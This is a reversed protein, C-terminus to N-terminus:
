FIREKVTIIDNPQIRDTPRAPIDRYRGDPEPRKIVVRRESGMETVGGAEAIAQLVTMGSDLRFPGPAHVQGTVYFEPARPVYIQDGARMTVEAAESAGEAQALGHLNIALRRLTNDAGKRLIYVSDAGAATEGGAQALLDVLTTSSEISYIGPRHVQGLVSVEQSRLQVITFTVHPNVLFQGKRLAAEVRRAAQALSLGGVQVRGALPVQVTGDDAVNMVGDMSSQGFVHMSIQDGPGLAVLPRIAATPAVMTASPRAVTASNVAGQAQVLLPALGTLFALAVIRYRDYGHM